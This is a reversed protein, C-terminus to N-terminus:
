CLAPKLKMWGAAEGDEAPPPWLLPSTTTSATPLTSVRSDTTKMMMVKGMETQIHTFTVSPFGSLSLSENRYIFQVSLFDHTM